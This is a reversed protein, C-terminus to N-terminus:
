PRTRQGLAAHGSMIQGAAKARHLADAMSPRRKTVTDNRTGDHGMAALEQREDEGGQHERQRRYGYVGGMALMLGVRWRDLVPFGDLCRVVAIVGVGLALLITVPETAFRHPM